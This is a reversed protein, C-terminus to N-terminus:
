VTGAILASPHHHNAYRASLNEASQSRMVAVSRAAREDHWTGYCLVNEVFGM